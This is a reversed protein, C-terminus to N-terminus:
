GAALTVRRKGAAPIPNRPSVEKLAGRWDSGRLMLTGGNCLCGLMEWAATSTLDGCEACFTPPFKGMDFSVNLVQGVRTGATIGLDGPGLCLLNCVNRHTVDVGKPTGTTGPTPILITASVIQLWNTAQRSSFQGSTYIVYCGSDPTALNAPPGTCSPTNPQDDEDICVVNAVTKEDVRHRTSGLTLVTCSDGGAQAIVFRLTSDPVVGGDLPVYQAGCTLISMIGVLMDIGRKVVLPVRSGPVVGMNQLRQALAASRQALVSYTITKSTTLDKAALGNAHKSAHHYFADTVTLFRPTERPGFMYSPSLGGLAATSMTTAM